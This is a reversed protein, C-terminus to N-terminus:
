VCRNDLNSSGCLWVDILIYQLANSRKANNLIEIDRYNTIQWTLIGSIWNLSMLIDSCFINELFPPFLIYYNIVYIYLNLQQLLLSDKFFELFFFFFSSVSTLISLLNDSSWYLIVFLLRHWIYIWYWWRLIFTSMTPFTDSGYKIINNYQM